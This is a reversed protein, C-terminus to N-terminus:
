YTDPSATYTADFEYGAYTTLLLVELVIVYVKWDTYLAGFIDISQNLLIMVLAALADLLIALAITRAGLLLGNKATPPVQKFYWKALLLVCPILAVWGVLFVGLSPVVSLSVAGFVLMAIYFVFAGLMYLGLAFSLTRKINMSIHNIHIHSYYLVNQWERVANAKDKKVFTGFYEIYLVNIWVCGHTIHACPLVGHLYVDDGVVPHCPFCSWKWNRFLLPDRALRVSKTFSEM